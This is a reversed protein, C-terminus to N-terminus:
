RILTVDGKLIIEEQTKICKLVALYYYVGLDCAVGHYTGDWSVDLGKKSEYVMNGFRNFIKFSVLETSMVNLIRFVDNNLDNNPSFANPMYPNCTCSVNSFHVQITDSVACGHNSKIVWYSGNNQVLISQTVEQTNWYYSDANPGADLVVSSFDVCLDKDAGLALEPYPYVLVSITDSVLCGAVQVGVTYLGSQTVTFTPSSSGDQWLYSANTTTANLVLQQGACFSTDAGLDVWVNLITVHITDAYVINNQTIQVWYTGTQTVDYTANTSGDQWLYSAGLTTANLLFHSTACLTTDNGFISPVLNMEELYISDIGMRLAGHVDTSSLEMSTDDDRPLFKITHSTSTAMFQVSRFNWTLANSNYVAQSVSPATIGVSTSDVFIEWSGSTDLCNKQKVNTQHFNITYITGPTFGSVTQMIGEHFRNFYGFTANVGSMFTSGSYPNGNLGDTAVPGFLDTLDPSDWSAVTALCNTDTFPVHQWGNALCSIGNIVGNLDSNFFQQAKVPHLAMLILCITSLLKMPKPTKLTM